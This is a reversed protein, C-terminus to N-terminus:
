SPLDPATKPMSVFYARRGQPCRLVKLCHDKVKSKYM